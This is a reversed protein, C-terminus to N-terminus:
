CTSNYEWTLVSPGPLTPLAMQFPLCKPCLQCCLLPWNPGQQPFTLSGFPSLRSHTTFPCHSHSLHNFPLNPDFWRTGLLSLHLKRHGAYYIIPAHVSCCGVTDPVKCKIFCKGVMRRSQGWLQHCASLHPLNLILLRPDVGGLCLNHIYSCTM